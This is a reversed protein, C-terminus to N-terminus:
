LTFAFGATFRQQLSTAPPTTNTVTVTYPGAEPPSAPVYSEYSNRIMKPNRSWNERFDLRMTLRPLVRYKLGGGYQLGPQFIGDCDLPPVSGFNFSAQVIGINSLGLRFLGNPGQLPAGALKILQLDPGAAFYRRVWSARPLCERRAKYLPDYIVENQYVEPGPNAHCGFFPIPKEVQEV